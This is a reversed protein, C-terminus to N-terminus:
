DFNENIFRFPISVLLALTVISVVIMALLDTVPM